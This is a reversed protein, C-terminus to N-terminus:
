NIGARLQMTGLIDLFDPYDRLLDNKAQVVNAMAEDIPGSEIEKGVFYEVVGAEVREAHDDCDINSYTATYWVDATLYLRLKDCLDRNEIDMANPTRERLLELLKEAESETFFWGVAMTPYYMDSM